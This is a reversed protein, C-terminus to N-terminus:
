RGSLPQVHSAKGARRLFAEVHRSHVTYAGDTHLAIVNDALLAALAAAPLQTLAADSMVRGAAVLEAFFAHTPVLGLKILTANTAVDLETRMAAVSLLPMAGAADLLLAFRGGTVTRVVEEAVPPAVRRSVLYAVAAADDIDQVEYPPKLARSWASSARMLPLAVGESSVFVVRLAGADASAKAFDQLDRFFAPDKKAVYDAADIVLM